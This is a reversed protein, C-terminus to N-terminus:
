RSIWYFRRDDRNETKVDGLLVQYDLWSAIVEETWPEGGKERVRDSHQKVITELDVAFEEDWAKSTQLEGFTIKSYSVFILNARYLLSTVFDDAMTAEVGSDM